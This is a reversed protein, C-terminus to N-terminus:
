GNGDTLTLSTISVNAAAVISTTTLILDANSTGATGDLVATGGSTLIRFWSATGSNDASSDATISSATLVGNSVTGFASANGTLEALLVQAGIATDADAAQTGDYIRIKASTGARPTLADLRANRLAVPSNLNNAM